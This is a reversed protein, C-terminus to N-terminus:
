CLRQKVSPFMITGSLWQSAISLLGLKSPPKPTVKEEMKPKSAEPESVESLFFNEVCCTNAYCIVQLPEATLCLLGSRLILLQLLCELLTLLACLKM